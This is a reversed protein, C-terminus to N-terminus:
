NKKKRRKLVKPQVDAPAAVKWDPLPPKPKGVHCECGCEVITDDWNRYHVRCGEDHGDLCWGFKRTM